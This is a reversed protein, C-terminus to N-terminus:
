KGSQYSEIAQYITKILFDVEDKTNYLGLSARVTDKLGYRQLLPQACHHGVRVAIGHKDLQQGLYDSPVGDIVFSFVGAKHPTTGIVKIGPIKNFLDAAYITLEKEYQEIHTMGLKQLYDAAAGLGVADAINGTGAEFKHPAENYVTHDFTVHKIMNGGGQWPPMEELLSRKGYLVGIGTPGYIKHGSFAYFDADLERVNVPLHPLSQAGDILVTAGYFHAMEIMTKIPNITGLVNSVQTIAVLRPHRALLKEYEGLVIEGQDSIPIEKIIMGTDRQILQWPVINSHHEMTSLLIYDGKGLVMRGYSQAVLNIAETTGRVFIIEEKSSAGILRQVKERAGEYADTAKTALTHAGRHINSNYERYFQDLATIVPLPKQTTAANDFWILPYGNIQQKLIPFDERIATIDYTAITEQNLSKIDNWVPRGSLFYYAQSAEFGPEPSSGPKSDLKKTSVQSRNDQVTVPRTSIEAPVLTNQYLINALQKISDVNYMSM